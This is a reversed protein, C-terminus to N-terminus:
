LTNLLPLEDSLGCGKVDLVRLYPLFIWSLDIRGTIGPNDRLIVVTVMIEGEEGVEPVAPLVGVINRESLNVEVWGEATCTVGVWTCFNHCQWDDAIALFADRLANLFIRTAAAGASTLYPVAGDCASLIGSTSSSSGGSSSSSRQPQTMSSSSFSSSVPPPPAATSSPADPDATATGHPLSASSADASSEEAPVATSTPSPPPPPAVSASPTPAVSASPTTTSSTTAGDGWCWQSWLRCYPHWRGMDASVVVGRWAWEPPLCGCLYTGRLGVFRLRPMAGWTAPVPGNLLNHGLRLTTLQAMRGWSEPLSGYLRNGRLSLSELSLMASWSTPLTGSIRNVGIDVERLHTLRTFLSPLTGSLANARLNLRTLAHMGVWSAPLTGSLANGRLNLDTLRTLRGWSTPLTGFVAGWGDCGFSIRTVVVQTGDVTAALEPLYGGGFGTASELAVGDYSCMVGPWRCFDSGWWRWRLAPMTDTFGLLFRLTHAQQPRTYYFPTGFASVCLAGCAMILAVALFWVLLHRRSLFAAM